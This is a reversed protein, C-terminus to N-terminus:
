AALFEKLELERVATEITTASWRRGYATPWTWISKLARKQRAESFYGNPTLFAHWFTIEEQRREQYGREKAADWHATNTMRWELLNCFGDIGDRHRLATEMSHADDGPIMIGAYGYGEASLSPAKPAAPQGLALSAKPAAEVLEAKASPNFDKM